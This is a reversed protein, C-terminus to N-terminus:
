RRRRRKWKKNKNVSFINIAVAIAAGVVIGVLGKGVGGLSSDMFLINVFLLIVFYCGACIGAVIAPANGVLISAVICGVFTSILGIPMSSMDIADQSLSGGSVLWATIASMLITLMLCLIVGMGIGIVPSVPHGVAKHKATKM